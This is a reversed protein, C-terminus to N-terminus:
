PQLKVVRVRCTSCYGQPTLQTKCVACWMTRREISRRDARRRDASRRDYERRDEVRKRRETRRRQPGRPKSTM